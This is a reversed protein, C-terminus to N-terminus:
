GRDLQPYRKSMQDLRNMLRDIMQRPKNQSKWVEILEAMARRYRVVFARTAGAGHGVHSSTWISDDKMTQDDDDEMDSSRPLAGLSDACTSDDSRRRPQSPLTTPGVPQSGMGRSRKWLLGCNTRWCWLYGDCITFSPELCIRTLKCDVCGAIAISRNM